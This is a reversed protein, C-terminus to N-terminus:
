VKRDSGEWYKDRLERKLIKGSPNKPIAEVFEVSKPAKYRALKDKCFNIIEEETVAAGENLSIVAHVKEVWYSDPIGIVAAERVAPHGYLVEEVERPYINEGGSVIMDKRRDVIYVYGRDDYYGVDGTYVWGDILTEGTDDPMNWYEVMLHKSQVIIEGMEGPKAPRGDDTLIEVYHTPASIHLGNHEKCECAIDGVERSGYRNYIPAGFAKEITERFQPYLTGATSMISKPSFVNLKKRIIFRSLEYLGEVYGLIQVPRFTNIADVCENMNLPTMQFTNFTVENRLWKGFRVRLKERGYFLDRESGWLLLKKMGFSFGTWGDYLIKLADRWTSYEKDQIIRVPQGTSGGSANEYWSRKILEDSKLEEFHYHILKKDLLPIKKFKEFNVLGSRRIVGSSLFLKHYYPVHRYAYVILDKLRESRVLDLDSGNLWQWNEIKKKYRLTDGRASLLLKLVSGKVIEIM